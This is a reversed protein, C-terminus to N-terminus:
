SDVTLTRGNVVVEVRTDRQRLTVPLTGGHGGELSARVQDEVDRGFAAAAADPCGALNAACVALARVTGALRVDDSISVNLEFTAQPM